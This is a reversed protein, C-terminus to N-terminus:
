EIEKKNKELYNSIVRRLVSLVCGRFHQQTNLVTALKITCFPCFKSSDKKFLRYLEQEAEHLEELTVEENPNSFFPSAM